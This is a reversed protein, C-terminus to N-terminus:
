GEGAAPSAQAAAISPPEATVDGDRLRRLWYFDHDPVDRGTEPLLAKTHPDRVRRGPAPYVMM